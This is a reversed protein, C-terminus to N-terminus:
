NSVLELGHYACFFCMTPEGPSFHHHFLKSVTLQVTPGKSIPARMRRQIFYDHTLPRPLSRTQVVVSESLRISWVTHHNEIGSDVPQLLFFAANVCLGGPPSQGRRSTSLNNETTKIFHNILIKLDHNASLSLLSM